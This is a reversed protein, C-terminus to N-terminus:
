AEAKFSVGDLSVWTFGTSAYPIVNGTDTINIRTSLSSSDTACTFDIRNLPRYGVPLTFIVNVAGPKIVGTLHVIGLTDKYYRVSGLWPTGYNTWGNLLTPTIWGEQKVNAKNKNLYNMLEKHTLLPNVTDRFWSNTFKSMILDMETVSPENGAGFIETLDLLLFSSVSVEKWASTARDNVELSATTISSTAVGVFSYKTPLSTLTINPAFAWNGTYLAFAVTSGATSHAYVSGYYKHGAVSNFYRRVAGYQASATFRAINNSTLVSALSTTAWGALGDSFDGNKILNTAPMGRLVDVSNALRSKFTGTLTVQPNSTTFVNTVGKFSTLYVDDITTTIPTALEYCTTLQNSALYTKFGAVDLSTLRSKKLFVCLLGTTPHSTICEDTILTLDVNSSSYQKFRDSITKQLGLAMDYVSINLRILNTDNVTAISWNEDASGDFVMKGIRQYRKNREITDKVGSHSSKLPYTSIIEKYKYAEFTTPVSGEELQTATTFVGNSAQIAMRTANSPTTIYGSSFLVNNLCVNDDWFIARVNGSYGSLVYNASPKCGIKITAKATTSPITIDPSMVYTYAQLGNYNFLNKGCSFISYPTEGASTIPAPYEPSPSNPSFAEYATAASGVELQPKITTTGSFLKITYFGKTAVTFTFAATVYGSDFLQTAEPSFVQLRYTGAGGLTASVTYSGANLELKYNPMSSGNLTTIFGNADVSYLTPNQQVYRKSDFLNKGQTTVLQYSAGEIKDIWVECDDAITSQIFTGTQTDINALDVTADLRNQLTTYKGRSLILESDVTANAVILDIKDYLSTIDNLINTLENPNSELDAILQQLATYADPSADLLAQLDEATQLKKSQGAGYCFWLEGEDLVLAHEGPLLKNKDFESKNGRRSRIAM